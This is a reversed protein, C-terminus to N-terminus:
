LAPLTFNWPHFVTTTEGYLFNVSNPGLTPALCSRIEWAINEGCDFSETAIVTVTVTAFSTLCKIADMLKRGTLLSELECGFILIVECSERKFENSCFVSLAQSVQYETDSKHGHRKRRSHRMDAVMEIRQMLDAQDQSVHRSFTQERPFEFRFLNNACLCHLVEHGVVTSTLLSGLDPEAQLLWELLPPDGSAYIYVIDKPVIASYILHRIERPFNLFTMSGKDSAM